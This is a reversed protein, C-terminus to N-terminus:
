DANNAFFHKEFFDSHSVTVNRGAILFLFKEQNNEFLKNLLESIKYREILDQQSYVFEDNENFITDEFLRKNVQFTKKTKNFLTKFNTNLSEFKDDFFDKSLQINLHKEKDTKLRLYKNKEISYYFEIEFSPLSSLSGFYIHFKEKVIFNM